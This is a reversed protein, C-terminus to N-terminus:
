KFFGRWLHHIRQRLGGCADSICRQEQLSYFRGLGCGGIEQFCWFNSMAKSTADM